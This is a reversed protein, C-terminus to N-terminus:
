EHKKDNQQKGARHASQCTSRNHIWLLRSRRVKTRGTGDNERAIKPLEANGHIAVERPPHEDLGLAAEIQVDGAHEGLGAGQAPLTDNDPAEQRRSVKKVPGWEL